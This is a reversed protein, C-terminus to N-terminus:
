HWIGAYNGVLGAPLPGGATFLRSGSDDYCHAYIANHYEQESFFDRFM